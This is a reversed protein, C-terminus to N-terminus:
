IIVRPFIEYIVPLWQLYSLFAYAASVIGLLAILYFVPRATNVSRPLHHSEVLSPIIAHGMGFSLAFTVWSVAFIWLWTLTGALQRWHEATIM